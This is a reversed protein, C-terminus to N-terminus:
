LRDIPSSWKSPSSKQYILISLPGSPVSLGMMTVFGGPGRGESRRLPRAAGPGRCAARRGPRHAPSRHARPQRRSRPAGTPRPVGRPLTRPVPLRHRAVPISPIRVIQSSRLPAQRGQGVRQRLRQTRQDCLQLSGRTFLHAGEPAHSVITHTHIHPPPLSVLSLCRPISLYWARKKM